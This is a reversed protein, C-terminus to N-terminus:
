VRISVWQKLQFNLNPSNEGKNKLLPLYALEGGLNSWFTLVLFRNVILSFNYKDKFIM